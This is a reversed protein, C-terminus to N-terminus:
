RRLAGLLSEIKRAVAGFEDFNVPKQIYLNTGLEAARQRDSEESSSTLVIVLVHKLLPDAKMQALVELGHVKPLNLDLLVLAPTDRKDRESFKGRGFLFDLAKAGDDVAVVQYPFHIEKFAIQTLEVDDPNDEVHLVFIHSKRM